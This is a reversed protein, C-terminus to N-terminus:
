QGDVLGAGTPFVERNSVEGTMTDYVAYGVIAM